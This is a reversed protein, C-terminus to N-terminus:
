KFTMTGSDIINGRRDYFWVPGSYSGDTQPLCFANGATIGTYGFYWALGVGGTRPFYEVGPAGKGDIKVTGQYGFQIVRKVATFSITGQKSNTTYTGTVNPIAASSASATVLCIATTALLALCKQVIKAFM